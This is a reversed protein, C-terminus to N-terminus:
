EAVRVARSRFAGLWRATASARDIRQRPTLSLTDRILTRDVEDCAADLEPDHARLWARVETYTADPALVFPAM